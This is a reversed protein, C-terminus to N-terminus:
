RLPNSAGDGKIAFLESFDHFVKFTIVAYDDREFAVTHGLPTEEACEIRLFLGQLVYEISKGRCTLQTVLAM